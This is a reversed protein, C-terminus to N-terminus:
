RPIVDLLADVAAHENKIVTVDSPNSIRVDRANQLRVAKAVIMEYDAPQDPVFQMAAAINPIGPTLRAAYQVREHVYLWGGAVRIRQVSVATAADAADIINEITHLKVVV